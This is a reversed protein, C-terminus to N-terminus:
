SNTAPPSAPVAPASNESAGTEVPAVTQLESLLEARRAAVEADFSTLVDIAKDRSTALGIVLYQAVALWYCVWGPTGLKFVTVIAFVPSSRSLHVSAVGWLWARWNQRIERCAAMFKKSKLKPPGPHIFRFLEQDPMGEICGIALFLRLGFLVVDLEQEHWKTQFLIEEMNHTAFLLLVSARFWQTLDKELEKSIVEVRLLYKLLFRFIPIAILKLLMRTVPKTILRLGPLNFLWHVLNGLACRAFSHEPSAGHLKLMPLTVRLTLSPSHELVSRNQSSKFREDESVSRTPTM